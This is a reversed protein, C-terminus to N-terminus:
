VRLKGLLGWKNGSLGVEVKMFVDHFVMKPM